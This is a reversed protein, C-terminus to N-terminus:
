EKFLPIEKIIKFLPFFTIFKAVFCVFILSFAILLNFFISHPLTFEGACMRGENVVKFGKQCLCEVTGNPAQHCSHACGGNNIKCPDNEGLYM